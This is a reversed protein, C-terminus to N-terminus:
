SSEVTTAAVIRNRGGRKAAYLASDAREIWSRCMEGQYREAVGASITVTGGNIESISLESIQAQLRSMMEQGQSLSAGQLLIGFEEGGLRGVSDSKRAQDWMVSAVRTLVIDGAPHGFQDNISKFHDLDVLVLTNPANSNEAVVLDLRALFARRTLVGTLGDTRVTLRLEFQSMVVKALNSLVEKDAETFRRPETGFVCLAGIKYGDPTSLPVGLYSRIGVPGTVFRNQAFRPDQTADDVMMADEGRITYDCFAESRACSRRPVIRESATAMSWQRDSGILNIAAHSINFISRVLTVIEDFEKEPEADLIKYRRLAALREEENAELRVVENM